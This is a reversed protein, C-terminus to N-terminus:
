RDDLQCAIYLAGGEYAELRMTFDYNPRNASDMGEKVIEGDACAGCRWMPMPDTESLRFDPHSKLVPLIAFDSRITDDASVLDRLILLENPRCDSPRLGVSRMFPKMSAKLPGVDILVLASVPWPHFSSFGTAYIGGGHIGSWFSPVRPPFAIRSDSIKL